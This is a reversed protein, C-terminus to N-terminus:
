PATTLSTCGSFMDSYCWAMLTTAPLEPAAILSTCDKFMSSYCYSKNILITPLLLKDAHIINTCGDFLKYFTFNNVLDTKDIYDDGFLLSMINGGVNCKKSM